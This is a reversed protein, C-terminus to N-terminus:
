KSRQPNVHLRRYYRLRNVDLHTILGSRDEERLHKVGAGSLGRYPLDVLAAAPVVQAVSGEVLASLCRLQNDHAGGCCHIAPEVPKLDCTRAPEVIGTLCQQRDVLPRRCLYFRNVGQKDTTAYGCLQV